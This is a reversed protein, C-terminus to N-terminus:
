KKDKDRSSFAIKIVPSLSASFKAFFLLILDDEGPSKKFFIFYSRNNIGAYNNTSYNETKPEYNKTFSIKNIQVQIRMINNKDNRVLKLQHPLRMCKNIGAYSNTFYNDTKQKYNKSSSDERVMRSNQM